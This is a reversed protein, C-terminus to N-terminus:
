KQSTKWKAQKNKYFLRADSGWICSSYNCYIELKTALDNTFSCPSSSAVAIPFLEELRQVKGYVSVTTPVTYLEVVNPLYACFIYYFKPLPEPGSPLFTVFLDHAYKWQKHPYCLVTVWQVTYQKTCLKGAQSFQQLLDLHYSSPYCNSDYRARHFTFSHDFNATDTQNIAHWTV